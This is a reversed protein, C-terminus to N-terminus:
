KGIRWEVDIDTPFNTALEDFVASVGMVVVDGKDEVSHCVSLNYMNSALMSSQVASYEAKQTSINNVRPPAASAHIVEITM